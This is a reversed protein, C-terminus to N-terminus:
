ISSAAREPWTDVLGPVHVRVKVEPRHCKLRDVLNKMIPAADGISDDESLFRYEGLSQLATLGLLTTSFDM